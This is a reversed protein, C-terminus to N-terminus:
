NVGMVVYEKQNGFPGNEWGPLDHGALIREVPVDRAIVGAGNFSEAIKRDTTWSELAGPSTVNTKLGRYLRVTKTGREAFSTQSNNYITRLDSRTKTLISKPFDFKQRSYAIGGFGFEEKAAQKAEVSVKRRSGRVWNDLLRRQRQDFREPPNDRTQNLFSRVRKESDSNLRREIIEERRRRVKRPPNARAKMRDKTAKESMRQQREIRAQRDDESIEAEELIDSMDPRATCRCNVPEGPTQGNPPDDWEFTRMHWEAHRDRVREDEATMWIFQEIGLEQERQKTIQANLQSIETRAIRQARSDSIRFRKRLEDKIQKTSNGGRVGRSV